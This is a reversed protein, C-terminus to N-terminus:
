LNFEFLFCQYNLIIIQILLCILGSGELFNIKEDQRKEEKSTLNKYISLIMPCLLISSALIFVISLIEIDTSFIKQIMWYRIKFFGTLPAGIITLSSLFYLALISNRTKVGFKFPNNKEVYAGIFLALSSLSFIFFIMKININEADYVAFLSLINNMCFLYYFIEKNNKERLASLTLFIMSLLLIIALSFLINEQFSPMIGLIFKGLIFILITGRIVFQSLMSCAFSFNGGKLVLRKKIGELPIIYVSGLVYILFFCIGFNNLHHSRVDLAMLDVSSKSSIIFIIGVFLFMISLLKALAFNRLSADKLSRENSFIFLELIEFVAMLISIKLIDTSFLLELNIVFIISLFICENAGELRDTNLFLLSIINAWIIFDVFYPASLPFSGGSLSPIIDLKKYLFFCIGYLLINVFIFIRRDLKKWISLFGNTLILGFGIMLLASSNM